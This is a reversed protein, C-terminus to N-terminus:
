VRTRSFQMSGQYVFPKTLSSNAPTIARTGFAVVQLEGSSPLHGGPMSPTSNLEARTGNNLVRGPQNSPDWVVQPNMVDVISFYTSSDFNEGEVLILYSGNSTIQQVNTFNTIIPGSMPGVQSDTEQAQRWEPIYLGSPAFHDRPPITEVVIYHGPAIEEVKLTKEGKSM